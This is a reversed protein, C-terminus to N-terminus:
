GATYSAAHVLGSSLFRPSPASWCGEAEGDLGRFIFKVAPGFKTETEVVKAVAVAHVDEPLLTYQTVKVKV